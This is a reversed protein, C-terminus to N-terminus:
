RTTFRWSLGGRVTHTQLDVATIAGAVGPTVYTERGYDAYLYEIRAILRPTFAHALGVGVTWGTRTDDFQSGPACTGAVPGGPTTCGAIDIFAVGGTAYLLTPSMAIGVVGRVSAGWHIDLIGNNVPFTVYATEGSADIGWLDAEIGLVLRSGPAQWRYGAHIGGVFGDPDTPATAVVAPNIVDGRSWLYGADVGTYFGTWNFVAPPAKYVPGKPADAASVPAVLALMATAGLIFKRV